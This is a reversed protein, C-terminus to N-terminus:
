RAGEGAPRAALVPLARELEELDARELMLDGAALWGEVQAPRRAGAIAATVGPQALVWAVAVAAVTAGRRAAVPRLREAVSLNAELRPEQFERDRRRWDDRPLHRARERSFAGSLLGSQMPSYCLVATSRAQCWPLLEALAGRDILSLAPQLSDVHRIRECRELLEVDFNSVGVHRVKGEEVLEAMTEWSREVPTGTRRDPWHIQYLDIVDVGLRRRSADVERRISAPRLDYVDGSGDAWLGCKTAIRVAGADGRQRLARGVMLESHGLGYAPATDVWNVGADLARHIAAVSQSDDQRGWGWAWRGGIAWAGLGVASLELATVGLRRYHM